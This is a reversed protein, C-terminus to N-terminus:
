SAAPRHVMDASALKALALLTPKWQVKNAQYAKWGLEPIVAHGPPGDPIPEPVVTLGLSRLDRVCLRAVAYGAVKAPDRNTLCDQPQAFRARFISLGTDDGQSPRFARPQVPAPLSADYFDPHIRRYVFESDDLPEHQTM